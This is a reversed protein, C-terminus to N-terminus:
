CGSCSAELSSWIKELSARVEAAVLNEAGPLAFVVVDVGNMTNKHTRFSERIQRKLRNRVVARASVKRAVSLGLRPYRLRNPASAAEFRGARIRNGQRLVRTYESRLRLRQNRPFRTNPM